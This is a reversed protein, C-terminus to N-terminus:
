SDGAYGRSIRKALGERGEQPQESARAGARKGDRAALLGGDPERGDGRARREAGRAEPEQGPDSEDDHAAGGPHKARLLVMPRRGDAMSCRGRVASEGILLWGDDDDATM